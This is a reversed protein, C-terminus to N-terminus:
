IVWTTEKYHNAFLRIVQSKNTYLPPPDNYKVYVVERKNGLADGIVQSDVTDSHVMFMRYYACPDAVYPSDVIRESQEQTSYIECAAFRADPCVM